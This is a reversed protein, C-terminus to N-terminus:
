SSENGKQRMWEVTQLIGEEFTVSPQWGMGQLKSSDLIIRQIEGVREDEYIAEKTYGTAKKTADFVQQTTVGVGTGVNFPGSMKDELALINAAIVDKVFVYDREQSGDGFITCDGNNLMQHTFIACVGAEGFTQRPGYINGYRLAVYDTGGTNKRSYLYREVTMKSVGYPSLPVIPADEKCPVNEPKPDGYGAGGSNSYIIKKVGNKEAALMLNLSGIINTNADFLPDAVSKRVDIQAAHHDIIDPKFESIAQNIASQDTLDVHYHKAQPNLYEKVGTSLNDIIAVNHGQELFADAVQSGIFGAGGTVLIKM